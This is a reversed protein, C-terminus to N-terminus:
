GHFTVFIYMRGWDIRSPKFENLIEHVVNLGRGEQNRCSNKMQKQNAM